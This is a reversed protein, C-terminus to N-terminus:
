IISILLSLRRILYMFDRSNIKAGKLVLLKGIETLNYRAAIHLPSDNM